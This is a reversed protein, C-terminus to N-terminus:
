EDTREPKMKMKDKKKLALRQQEVKAKALLGIRINHQKEYDDFFRNENLNFGKMSTAQKSAEPIKFVDGYAKNFKQVEPNEQQYKKFLSQLKLQKLPRAKSPDFVGEAIQSTPPAILNAVKLVRQEM